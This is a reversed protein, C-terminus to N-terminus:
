GEPMEDGHLQFDILATGEFVDHQYPGFWFSEAPNANEEYHENWDLVKDYYNWRVYENTSQEVTQKYIMLENYREQNAALAVPSLFITLIWFGIILVAVASSIGAIPQAIDKHKPVKYYLVLAVIFVILAIFGIFLIM